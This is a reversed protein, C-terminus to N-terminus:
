IYKAAALNSMDPEALLEGLEFRKSPDGNFAFIRQESATGPVAYGGINTLAAAIETWFDFRDKPCEEDDVISFSFDGVNLVNGIFQSDFKNPKPWPITRPISLYLRRENPNGTMAFSTLYSQYALSFSGLSPILRSRFVGKFNNLVYFTPLLDVAHWGFSASYQM